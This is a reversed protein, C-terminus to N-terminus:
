LCIALYVTFIRWAHNALGALFHRSRENEKLNKYNLHRGPFWIWDSRLRLMHLGTYNRGRFNAKAPDDQELSRIMRQTQYASSVTSLYRSYWPQVTPCIGLGQQRLIQCILPLGNSRCMKPVKHIELQGGACQSTFSKRFAGAQDCFALIGLLERNPVSMMLLGMKAWLLEYIGYFSYIALPVM